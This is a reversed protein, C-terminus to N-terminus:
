NEEKFPNLKILLERQEMEFRYRRRYWEMSTEFEKLGSGYKATTKCLQRQIIPTIKYKEWLWDLFTPKCSCANVTIPKMNTIYKEM